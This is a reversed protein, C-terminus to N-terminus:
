AELSCRERAREFLDVKEVFAPKYGNRVVLLKFVLDPNLGSISYEGEANTLTRKGCDV